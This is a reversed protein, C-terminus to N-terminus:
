ESGSVSGSIMMMMMLHCAWRHAYGDRCSFAMQFSRTRSAMCASNLGLNTPQLDSEIAEGAAGTPLFVTSPQRFLVPIIKHHILEHSIDSCVYDGQYSPVPSQHSGMRRRVEENTVRATYPIRLIRRLCWKDFADLRRSTAATM